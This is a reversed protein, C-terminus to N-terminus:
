RSFSKESLGPYDAADLIWVIQAFPVFFIPTKPSVQVKCRDLLSQTFKPNEVWVGSAEVDVLQLVMVPFDQNLLGTVQAVIRQGVLDKLAPM